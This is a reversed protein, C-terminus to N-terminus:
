RPFARGHELPRSVKKWDVSGAGAVSGLVVSPPGWTALARPQDWLDAAIVATNAYRRALLVWDAQFQAETFYSDAPIYWLVESDFNGAKCSRRSLVVRLGM